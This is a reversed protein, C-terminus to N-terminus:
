ATTPFSPEGDTNFTRSKLWAEVARRSYRVCRGIRTVPPWDGIRTSRAKELTNPKVGLWAAVEETTLMQDVPELERGANAVQEEDCPQSKSRVM